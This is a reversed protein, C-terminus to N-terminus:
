SCVLDIESYHENTTASMLTHQLLRFRETSSISVKNVEFVIVDRSATNNVNDDACNLLTTKPMFVVNSYIGEQLRDDKKGKVLDVMMKICFNWVRKQSLNLFYKMRM